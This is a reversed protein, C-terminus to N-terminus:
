KHGSLMALDQNPAMQTTSQETSYCSANTASSRIWHLHDKYEIGVLQSVTTTLRSANMGRDCVIKRAKPASFVFINNPITFSRLFLLDQLMWRDM